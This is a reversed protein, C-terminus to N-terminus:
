TLSRGSECIGFVVFSLLLRTLALGSVVAIVLSLALSYLAREGAGLTRPAFLVVTVARGPVFLVLPIGLILRVAAVDSMLTLAATGGAVLPIALAILKRHVPSTGYTM